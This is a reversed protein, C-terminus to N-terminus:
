QATAVPAVWGGSAPAKAAGTDPAVWAAPAASSRPGAGPGASADQVAAPQSPVAQRVPRQRQAIRRAPGPAPDQELGAVQNGKSYMCQGYTNDYQTQILQQDSGSASAGGLTGVGAGAAAGVGAGRGGGVAAGLGAGLVTGLVAAGVARNNAAQAQGAVAQASYQQCTAADLQYAEFTKGRGPMVQVTPGFPTQACGALTIAAVGMVVAGFRRKVYM